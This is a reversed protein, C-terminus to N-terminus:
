NGLASVRHGLCISIQVQAADLFWASVKSITILIYQVNNGAASNKPLFRAAHAHPPNQLLVEDNLSEGRISIGIPADRVIKTALSSLPRARFIM